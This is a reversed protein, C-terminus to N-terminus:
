SPSSTKGGAPCSSSYTWRAPEVWGAKLGPSVTKSFSGCLMVNGTRDFAKAARAPQSGFCLDAYIHDEILPVHRSALLEVLRKKAAESMSAGMPNSVNPMAIVAKVPHEALALELAELSMGARPHTPIELARLGLSQLIQLFGYYTPSELAV